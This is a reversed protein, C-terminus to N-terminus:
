VNSTLGQTTRFRDNVDAKKGYACYVHFHINKQPDAPQTHLERGIAYVMSM